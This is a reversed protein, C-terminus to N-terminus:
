ANLVDKVDAALGLEIMGNVDVKRSVLYSRLIHPALDFVSPDDPLIDFAFDLWGDCVKNWWPLSRMKQFDVDSRHTLIMWGTTQNKKEYNFNVPRWKSDLVFIGSPHGSNLDLTKLIGSGGSTVVLVDHPLYEAIMVGISPKENKM